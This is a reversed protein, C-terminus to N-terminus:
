SHICWYLDGSSDQVIVAAKPIMRITHVVTFFDVVGLLCNIYSLTFIFTSTFGANSYTMFWVFLPIFGLVLSPLILVIIM